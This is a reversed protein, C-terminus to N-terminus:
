QGKTQREDEASGKLGGEQHVEEVGGLLLVTAHHVDGHTAKALCNLLGLTGEEEGRVVRREDSSGTPRGRRGCRTPKLQCAEM